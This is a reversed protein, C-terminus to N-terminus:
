QEDPGEQYGAFPDNRPIFRSLILSLITGYMFCYVLQSFFAIQPYVNELKEMMSISNADLIGAYAQMVQDFQQQTLDASIFLMNALLVASYILASLFAIMMGYKFSTSGTVGDYRDALRQMFFRMLWICGAFKVLWLVSSALLVLGTSSMGSALQNLFMVAASTLGLVAGAKGANNWLIRTSVTEKMAM